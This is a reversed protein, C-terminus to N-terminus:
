LEAEVRDVLEGITHCAAAIQLPIMVDLENEIESVLGVMMLSTGSLDTKLNTNVNLGSADVSYSTSVLEM